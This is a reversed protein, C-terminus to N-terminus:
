NDKRIQHSPTHRCNGPKLASTAHEHFDCTLPGRPKSLLAMLAVFRLHRAAAGQRTRDSQTAEDVGDDMQVDMWCVIADLRESATEHWKMADCDRDRDDDDDTGSAWGVLVRARTRPHVLTEACVVPQVLSIEPDLSWAM